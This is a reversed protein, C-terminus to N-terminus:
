TLQSFGALFTDNPNLLPNALVAATDYGARRFREALIPVGRSDRWPDVGTLVASHSPLTWPAPAWADEFPTSERAFSRLNPTRDFPPSLGTDDYRVTDIFILVVNPHASKDITQQEFGSGSSRLPQRGATAFALVLLGAFVTNWKWAGGDRIRWFRVCFGCVVTIVLIWAVAISLRPFGTSNKVAPVARSLLLLGPGAVVVAASAFKRLANVSFLLGVSSCFIAWTVPVSFWFSHALYPVTVTEALCFTLIAADAAGTLTGIIWGAGAPNHRLVDSVGNYVLRLRSVLQRKL